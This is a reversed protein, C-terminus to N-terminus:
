AVKKKFKRIALALMVFAFLFLFLAEDWLTLIGNGKLFLDRLIVIYYRAPIFYTVVQLAKPMNFIPYIFGSLLITPLLTTMVALQSAMLQTRAVVSIIIGQSLAGTLFLASLFFLLLYSGRFPVNFLFKAVILGVLLDFFAILFYPIFKGVVLEPAKVPTSILQEMTGREWERAVTLSTLLASIVMIIMAIVGPTIFWTSVLGENFWVRPRVDLSKIFTLGKKNFTETLLEINYNSVVSRVYGIAITATNADSGDAILQLPATKGSEVYHSFDKPVILALLADGNNIMREIDRYNDTYSVIKFYKSNKFNLLFDRSVQSSADQNWVVTTVNDIDLSLGYGFILLLFIPIGLALSLSRPDRKIQIFEKWAIAKIRRIRQRIM